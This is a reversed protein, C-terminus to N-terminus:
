NATALLSSPITIGLAKATKLNVVLEFRTPQEVPLEDPKAGKLIRDVYVAAYRYQNRISGGYSFLGGALASERRQFATPLKATIALEAIMKAHEVVTPDSLLIVGDARDRTFTAFARDHEEGARAEVVQTTVNFKDLANETERLQLAVNQNYSNSVVGVRKMGPVLEFFLEVVKASLDNTINSVGTINGGPRALSAVFGAGVPDGVSVMVIPIRSTLRRVAAVTPTAWAVIVDFNGNVLDSILNADDDFTGGPWRIHLTVNQGEIYGRQRMGDRFASLMEPTPPVASVLAIRFQGKQALAAIPWIGLVIIVTRRRIRMPHTEKLNVGTEAAGGSAPGSRSTPYVIRAPPETIV